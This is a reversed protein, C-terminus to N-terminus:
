GLYLYSHLIQRTFNKKLYFGRPRTWIRVGEENIAATLAHGNAAKPRLQLYTGLRATLQEIHGFAILEMIEEWDHKLNQEEQQSPTWLIPQGIHRKAMTLHRGGEVPMWLVKQLKYRVYSTQWTVGFHAILPAVCVFTTELPEGNGDIPLTKLEIGLHAFDQEPKSGASAGLVYEILNGVWGKARKLDRPIPIDYKTAIDVLSQGTLQCARQWLQQENQPSVRQQM